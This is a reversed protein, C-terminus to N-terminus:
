AVSADHLFPQAAALVSKASIDRICNMERCGESRFCPACSVQKTVVVGRATLPRWQNSNTMGTMITVVPTGAAAALHGVSSDAAIVLASRSLIARLEGVSTRGTFDLLEPNDDCLRRAVASEAVGFGSVAVRHGQRILENAVTSWRDSPWAKLPSGSGPHLVITGQEPGSGSLLSAASRLDEVGLPPLSYTTPTRRGEVLAFLLRAQKASLHEDDVQWPISTTFAPGGGGSSYGIRIPIGARSFLGAMNPYFPYLDIAADYRVARIERLASRHTRLSASLRLDWGRDIRNTKWHDVHHMWRISPHGDFASRGWSPVAVGVETNPLSESILPLVASSIIADGLHGGVGILLREIPWRGPTSRRRIALIADMISLYAYGITSQVLYRGRMPSRRENQSVTM